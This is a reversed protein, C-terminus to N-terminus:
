AVMLRHEARMLANRAAIAGAGYNEQEDYVRVIVDLNDFEVHAKDVVDSAKQAFGRLAAADISEASPRAPLEM